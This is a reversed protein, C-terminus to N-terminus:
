QKIERTKLMNEHTKKKWLDFSPYNSFQDTGILGRGLVNKM